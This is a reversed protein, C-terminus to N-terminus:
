VRCKFGAYYWVIPDSLRDKVECFQVFAETPSLDLVSALRKFKEELELARKAKASKEAASHGFEKLGSWQALCLGEM